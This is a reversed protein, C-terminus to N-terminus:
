SKNLVEKFTSKWPDRTVESDSLQKRSNAEDDRIQAQGAPRYHTEMVLPARRLLPDLFALLRHM